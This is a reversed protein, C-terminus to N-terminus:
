YQQNCSLCSNSYDLQSAPGPKTARRVVFHIYEKVHLIIVTVMMNTLEKFVKLIYHEPQEKEKTRVEDYCLISIVSSSLKILCSNNLLCYVRSIHSCTSWVGYSHDRGMEAERKIKERKKSGRQYNRLSSQNHGMCILM